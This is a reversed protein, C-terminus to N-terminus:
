FIERSLAVPFEQIEVASGRFNAGPAQLMISSGFSIMVLPLGCLIEEISRL